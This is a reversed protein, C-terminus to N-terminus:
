RRLYYGRGDRDNQLGHPKLPPLIHRTLTSLDKDIGRVSLIDILEKGPM